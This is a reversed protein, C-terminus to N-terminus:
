KNVPCARSRVPYWCQGRWKRHSTHSDVENRTSGPHLPVAAPRVVYGKQVSKSLEGVPIRVPLSQPLQEFLGLRSQLNPYVRHHHDYRLAKVVKFSINSSHSGLLHLVGCGTSPFSTFGNATNAAARIINLLQSLLSLKSNSTRAKAKQCTLRICVPFVLRCRVYFPGSLHVQNEYINM